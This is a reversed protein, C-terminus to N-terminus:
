ISRWFSRLNIELQGEADLASFKNFFERWQYLPGFLEPKTAAYSQFGELTVGSAGGFLRICSEAEQQLEHISKFGMRAAQILKRLVEVLENGDLTGNGDKDAEKFLRAALEADDRSMNRPSLLEEQLKDFVSPHKRAYQVFEGFDIHGNGDVDAENVLNTAHGEIEQATMSHESCQSVDRVLNVADQNRIMGEVAYCDFVAKWVVLQGFLDPM